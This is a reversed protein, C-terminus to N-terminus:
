RAPSNNALTDWHAAYVRNGRIYFAADGALVSRDDQQAIFYINDEGNSSEVIMAGRSEIRADTGTHVDFGHLGSYSWAAFNWPESISELSPSVASGHVDIGLSIRV